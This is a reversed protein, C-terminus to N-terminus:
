VSVYERPKITYRLGHIGIGSPSFVVESAKGCDLSPDSPGLGLCCMFRNHTRDNPTGGREDEFGDEFGDLGFCSFDVVGHSDTFPLAIIFFNDCRSFVWALVSFFWM